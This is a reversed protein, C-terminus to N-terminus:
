EENERENNKSIAKLIAQSAAFLGVRPNEGILKEIKKQIELLNTKDEVSCYVVEHNETGDVQTIGLRVANLAHPNNIKEFVTSEVRKFRQVMNALENWFGEEDSDLWQKPPKSSILSGLSELWETEELNEDFLRMGFAKLKPERIHILLGESRSAIEKRAQVFDNSTDFSSTTEKKIRDLLNPYSFRLEDLAKKLTMVFFQIKASNEYAKSSIDTVKTNTKAPTKTKEKSFAADPSESSFIEGPLEIDLARPLEEFILKSPDRANLIADRCQRAHHSLKKTKLVYPPLKSVFTCLPKVVQLLNTDANDGDALELTRLLKSFIERRVGEIKCFQVQFSEPKKMLRLFEEANLEPSFTGDEYFAIEHEKVIVFIAFLLPILGERVGFPPKKLHEFLESVTIKEGHNKELEQSLFSFIPFFSCPDDKSSPFSIGKEDSHLNGNKLVSLYMSMEPPRKKPDMGLLPKDPNRFLNEILRMRAAAAASSLSQRNILENHLKPASPFLEDCSRSLLELFDKGTQVAQKKGNQFIEMGSDLSFNKLNVFNELHKELLLRSTARKRSVEESAFRDAHLEPTHSALWDWRASEQAVNAMSQLPKPIAFIFQRGRFESDDIKKRALLTEEHTECLPIVVVGDANRRSIEIELNGCSLSTFEQVSCYYISYYRLNGTQIYHKRAVIPASDLMEQVYTGVIDIAGIAKAAKDYAQNLDVSLHPWLCYGERKGRPYVVGKSKLNELHAQINGANKGTGLTAMLAKVTCVLDDAQILNLLAITKLIEKEMDDEAVWSSVINDLQAWHIRGNQLSLQASFNGKIYDFLQPLRFFTKEGVEHHQSFAQLGFPESGLLFSFLSRENQAFKHFFRILVPTVSPHLPYHGIANEKLAPSNSSAGFWGLDTVRKLDSRILNKLNKDSEIKCSQINLAEKILFGIQDLPQDFLIEEYRGAIKQWERQTSLSLHSAYANFGQHLLSVIFFPEEGSRAAMEALQQLLYLDQHEPYLAAYELFKGMEDIILFIGSYEGPELIDQKFRKLINVLDDDSLKTEGCVHSKLKHFIESKRGKSVPKELIEYLTKIIGQSLSGRFGTVLLPFYRLKKIPTPIFSEMKGVLNPPIEKVFGCAIKSLLLAFSSKGTGYDGTIRWARQTSKENFGVTIRSFCEGTFDTLIYNDLAKPDTFDQELHVPRFFRPNLDFIESIKQSFETNKV